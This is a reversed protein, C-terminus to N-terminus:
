KSRGKGRRKKRGRPAKSDAEDAKAPESKAAEAKAAKAGARGGKRGKAGAMKGDADTQAMEQLVEPSADPGAPAGDDDGRAEAYADMEAMEALVSPSVGAAEDFVAELEDIPPLAEEDPGSDLLQDFETIVSDEGAMLVPDGADDNGLEAVKGKRPAEDAADSASEDLSADLDLELDDLDLSGDADPEAATSATAATDEAPAEPATDEEAAVEVVSDDPSAEVVSEDEAAEIALEEEDDEGAEVALSEDPAEVTEPEDGDVEIAEGAELELEEEQPIIDVVNAVSADAEPAVVSVAGAVPVELRVRAGNADLTGRAADVLAAVLLRDGAPPTAGVVELWATDGDVGAAVSGNAASVAPGVLLMLLPVLRDGRGEVSGAEAFRREVFTDRGAAVESAELCRLVLELWPQTQEPRAIRDRLRDLDGLTARLALWANEAQDALGGALPLLEGLEVRRAAADIRARPAAEAVPRAVRLLDDVAGNGRRQLELGAKAQALLGEHVAASLKGFAAHAHLGLDADLRPEVLVETVGLLKGGAGKVVRAHLKAERRRGGHGTVVVDQELRGAVAVRGFVNKWDIGELVLADQHLNGGLADDIPRGDLLSAGASWGVIKGSADAVVVALESVGAIHPQLETVTALRGNLAEVESRWTSEAEARAIAGASEWEKREQEHREVLKNREAEAREEAALIDKSLQGELRTRAETEKQATDALATRHEEELRSRDHIWKEADEEHQRQAEELQQKLADVESVRAAIDRLEELETVLEPVRDAEAQAAEHDGRAAELEAAVSRAEGQAAEIEAKFGEAAARAADLEARAADLEASGAEVKGSSAEVETRAAELDARAAELEARAADLEAKAAQLEAQNAAESEKAAADKDQASSVKQAKTAAAIAAMGAAKKAADLETQLEALQATLKGADGSAAELEAIRAKAATLDASSADGKGKGKRGGKQVDALAAEASEARERAAALEAALDPADTQSTLQEKLTALETQTASLKGSLDESVESLLTLRALPAGGDADLRHQELALIRHHGGSHQLEIEGRYRGDAEVARDMARAIMAREGANYLEALAKGQMAEDSHGLLQAAGASWALVHGGPDTLVVGESLHEMSRQFLTVWQQLNHRTTVDVGFAVYGVTPGRGGQRLRSTSWSVTRQSGDKVTVVLETERIHENRVFGQHIGDVVKRYDPNPYFRSLMADVTGCDSTDYGTLERLAQSMLVIKFDLDAIYILLPSKLLLVRTLAEAETADAKGSGSNQSRYVRTM